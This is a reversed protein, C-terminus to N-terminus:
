APTLNAAELVRRRQGATLMDRAIVDKVIRAVFTYGRAEALVWRQWELEDLANRLGEAPIATAQRVLDETVRDPLVSMAALVVQASPTLGRFGVRIAAVVADPLDGPLTQELTRSPAPWAGGAEAPELGRVIAHLLEVVLLPVGASDIVIRRALRDAADPAYHPFAWTVLGAIDSRTLRELAVAMGDLSRGVDARLEDVVAHGAGPVVALLVLVRGRTLDRLVAQIGLLSEDDLCHADDVVLLVPREEAAAGVVERFASGVPQADATRAAPFRDGWAPIRRAFASLAEIPASGLGPSELLGGRALGLLGSCPEAADARVALASATTWGALTLRGVLEELVRTKGLGMDGEILAFGARPGQAVRESLSALDGLTAARGVLPARRSWFDQPEAPTPRPRRPTRARRIRDALESTGPDPEAGTERKVREAFTAFTELAAARDGALAEGQMMTRVSLDSLPELTLARRAAVLAERVRGVRLEGEAARRLADGARRRWTSRQAALWDEFPSADPVAFGEMFDGAVLAAAEPWRGAAVHRDFEEIDLTVVEGALRVQTGDADVAAEGVSHRLIRIAERLSHRAQTEQKDGWLLGVIHDRARARKPSLALYVLLALHKRWLLEPPAPGGDLSVEVPGLLRCSIM